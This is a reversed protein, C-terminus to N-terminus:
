PKRSPKQSARCFHSWTLVPLSHTDSGCCGVAARLATAVARAHGPALLLRALWREKHGMFSRLPGCAARFGGHGWKVRLGLWPATRPKGLGAAGVGPAGHPAGWRPLAAHQLGVARRASGVHEQLILVM